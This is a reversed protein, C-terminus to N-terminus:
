KILNRLSPFPREKSVVVKWTPPILAIVVTQAVVSMKTNTQALTPEGYMRAWSAKEVEVNTHPTPTYTRYGPELSLRPWANACNRIMSLGKFVACNVRARLILVPVGCSLIFMNWCRFGLRKYVHELVQVRVM